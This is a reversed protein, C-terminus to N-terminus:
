AELEKGCRLCRQELIIRYGRDTDDLSPMRLHSGLIWCWLRLM